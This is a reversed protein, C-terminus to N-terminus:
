PVCDLGCDMAKKKGVFVKGPLYLFSFNHNNHNNNMCIFDTSVWVSRLCPVPSLFLVLALNLQKPPASSARGSHLIPHSIRGRPSLTIYSVTFNFQVRIFPCGENHAASQSIQFNLCSSCGFGGFKYCDGKHPERAFLTIDSLRLPELDQTLNGFM